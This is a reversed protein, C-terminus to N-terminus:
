AVAAYCGWGRLSWEGEDSKGRRRHGEARAVEAEGRRVGGGARTQVALSWRQEQAGPSALAPSACQAYRLPVLSGRADHTNACLM